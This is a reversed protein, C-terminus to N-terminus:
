EDKKANKQWNDKKREKMGGDRGGDNRRKGILESGLSRGYHGNSSPGHQVQALARLGGMCEFPKANNPVLVGPGFWGRVHLRLNKRRVHM